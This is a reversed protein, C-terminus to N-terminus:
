PVNATAPLVYHGSNVINNEREKKQRDSGTGKKGLLPQGLTIFHQRPNYSVLITPNFTPLFQVRGSVHASFNQQNPSGDAGASYIDNM